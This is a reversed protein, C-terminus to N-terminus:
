TNGNQKEERAAVYVINYYAKHLTAIAPKIENDYQAMTVNRCLWAQFTDLAEKAENDKM